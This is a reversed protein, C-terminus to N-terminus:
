SFTATLQQEILKIEPAVNIKERLRFLRDLANRLFIQHNTSSPNFPRHSLAQQLSRWEALITKTNLNFFQDSFKELIYEEAEETPHIRDKKYFRYDRLDDMMIEYAPFYIVDSTQLQHCAIRLISKSVSNLELSDKLHRVPSVTLIIKISPNIQKLIQIINKFSQVITEIPLLKKQFLSTPMKHCNAVILGTDKTEYAFASGYTMILFKSRLINDRVNTLITSIKKELLAKNFDTISSHFQYHYFLDERQIYNESSPIGMEFAAKLLQHISVPNYLTGFPNSVCSFKNSALYNGAIESFCSGITIIEDAHNIQNSNPTVVLDTKWSNM